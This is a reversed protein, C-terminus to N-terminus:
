FRLINRMMNQMWNTANQGKRLNSERKYKADYPNCGAEILKDKAAEAATEERSVAKKIKEVKEASLTSKETYIAVVTDMSSINVQGSYKELNTKFCKDFDSECGTLVLLLVFFATIHNM